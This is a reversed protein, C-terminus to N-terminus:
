IWNGLYKLGNLSVHLPSYSTCTKGIITPSDSGFVMFLKPTQNPKNKGRTLVYSKFSIKNSPVLLFPSTHEYQM